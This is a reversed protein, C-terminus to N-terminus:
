NRGRSSTLASPVKSSRILASLNPEGVRLNSTGVANTTEHSKVSLVEIGDLSGRSQGVYVVDPETGAYSASTNGFTPAAAPPALPVRWVALSPADPFGTLHLTPVESVLQGTANYASIAASEPTVESIGTDGAKLGRAFFMHAVARGSPPRLRGDREFGFDGATTAVSVLVAAVGSGDCVTVLWAASLFNKLPEDPAAQPNLYASAAFRPRGCPRLRSPDIPSGRHRSWRQYSLPAFTKLYGVVLREAADASLPSALEATSAREVFRGDGGILEQLSPTVAMALKTEPRTRHETLSDACGLAAFLLGGGARGM